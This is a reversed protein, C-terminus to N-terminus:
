QQHDLYLHSVTVKTRVALQIMRQKLQERRHRGDKRNKLGIQFNKKSKLSFNQGQETKTLQTFPSKKIRTLNM